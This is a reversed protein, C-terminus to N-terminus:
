LRQGCTPCFECHTDKKEYKSIQEELAKIVIIYAISEEEFNKICDSDVNCYKLANQFNKYRSEYLNKIYELAKKKTM